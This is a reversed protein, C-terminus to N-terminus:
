YSTTSAHEPSRRNEMPLGKLQALGETLGRRGIYRAQAFFQM